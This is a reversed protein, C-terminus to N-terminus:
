PKPKRRKLNNWHGCKVCAYGTITMVAGAWPGSKIPEVPPMPASCKRCNTDAASM